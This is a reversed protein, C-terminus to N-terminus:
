LLASGVLYLSVDILAVGLLVANIIVLDLGCGVLSPWLSPGFLLQEGVDVEFQQAACCQQKNDIEFQQAPGNHMSGAEGLAYFVM